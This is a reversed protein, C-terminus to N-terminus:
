AGVDGIRGAGDTGSVPAGVTPSDAPSVLGATGDDARRNLWGLLLAVARPDHRLRHDGGAIIRLEAAGHARALARADDAPVQRDQDGHLILLPRDRLRGVHDLPRNRRLEDAWRGLSPPWSPDTVVGVDRCHQLFRRPERAWDDFDARAAMAAVGKVLPQDVALRIALSGGTTSGVLCVGDVEAALHRVGVDLDALWGGLSFDGTSEGCGRLSLALVTFGLDDSIREALRRYTLNPAGPRQRSPFGHCLVVGPGETERSVPRSVMGQLTVGDGALQIETVGAM